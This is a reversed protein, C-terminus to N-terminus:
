SNNGCVTTACIVHRRGEKRRQSVSVGIATQWMIMVISLRVAFRVIYDMQRGLGRRRHVSVTGNVHRGRGVACSVDALRVRV